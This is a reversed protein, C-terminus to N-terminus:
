NPYFFFMFVFYSHWRRINVFDFSHKNPRNQIAQKNYFYKLGNESFSEEQKHYGPLVWAHWVKRKSWGLDAQSFRWFIENKVFRFYSNNELESRRPIHYALQYIFYQTNWQIQNNLQFLLLVFFFCFCFCFCFCKSSMVKLAM